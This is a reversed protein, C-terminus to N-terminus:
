DHTITQPNKVIGQQRCKDLWSNLEALDYLIKRNFRIVPPGKGQHCMRQLVKENMRLYGAAEKNTLLTLRECPVSLSGHKTNTADKSKPEKASNTM